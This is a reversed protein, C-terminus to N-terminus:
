HEAARCIERDAASRTGGSFLSCGAEFRRLAREGGHEARFVAGPAGRGNTHGSRNGDHEWLKHLRGSM